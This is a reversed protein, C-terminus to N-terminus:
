FLSDDTKAAELQEAKFRELLFCISKIIQGALSQFGTDVEEKLRQANDASWQAFTKVHDSRYFFSEDHLKGEKASFLRTDVEIRLRLDPDFEGEERDLRFERVGVEFVADVDKYSPLDYAVVEGPTNPGPADLHVFSYRGQEDTTATLHERMIEHFNLAGVYGQLSGESEMIEKASSGKIAGAVTGVVAAVPGIFVGLLVGVPHGSRGGAILVDAGASAGHRMAKGRTLPKDFAIHPSLRAAVVGVRGMDPAPGNTPASGKIQEALPPQVQGYALFSFCFLIIVPLIMWVTEKVKDNIAYRWLRNPIIM